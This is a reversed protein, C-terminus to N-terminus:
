RGLYPIKELRGYSFFFSVVWVSLIKKRSKSKRLLRYILASQRSFRQLSVKTGAKGILKSPAQQELRCFWSLGLRSYYPADFASVFNKFNFL